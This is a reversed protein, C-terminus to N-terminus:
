REMDESLPGQRSDDTSFDRALITSVPEGTEYQITGPQNMWLGTSPEYWQRWVNGFDTNYSLDGYITYPQLQELAAFVQEESFLGESWFGVEYGDPMRDYMCVKCSFTSELLEKVWTMDATNSLRLDAYVRMFDDM